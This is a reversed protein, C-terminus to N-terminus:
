YVVVRYLIRDAEIPPDSKANNDGQLIIRNDEMSLVRHIVVQKLLGDGRQCAVIDGITIDDVDVVKALIIQNMHITPEMSQSMIFFLRFGLFNLRGFYLSSILTVMIAFVALVRAIMVRMQLFGQETPNEMVIRIFSKEDDSMKNQGQKFICIRPDGM